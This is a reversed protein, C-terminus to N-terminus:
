AYVCMDASRDLIKDLELTYISTFLFYSFPDATWNWIISIFAKEKIGKSTCQLQIAFIYMQLSDKELQSQTLGSLHIMVQLMHCIALTPLHSLKSRSHTGHPHSTTPLFSLVPSPFVRWLSLHTTSTFIDYYNKSLLKQM